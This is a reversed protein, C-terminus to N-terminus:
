YVIGVGVAVMGTRQPYLRKIRFYRLLLSAYVLAFLERLSLLYPVKLAVPFFFIGFTPVSSLEEERQM